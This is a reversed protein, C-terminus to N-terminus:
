SLHLNYKIEYIMVIAGLTRIGIWTPEIDLRPAFHALFKSYEDNLDFGDGGKSALPPDPETTTYQRKPRPWMRRANKSHNAPSSKWVIVPAPHLRLFCAPKTTTKPNSFSGSHYASPTSAPRLLASPGSLQSPDDPSARGRNPRRHWWRWRNRSLLRAAPVYLVDTSQVLSARHTHHEPLTASRCQPLGGSLCHAGSDSTSIAVTSISV